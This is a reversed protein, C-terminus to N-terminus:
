GNVLRKAVKDADVKFSGDRIASRLKEVKSSEGNEALERAKASVNVKVSDRQETKDSTKAKDPGSGRSSKGAGAAEGPKRLGDNIRM